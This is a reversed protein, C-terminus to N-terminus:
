LDTGLTFDVCKQELIIDVTLSSRQIVVDGRGRVHVAGDLQLVELSDLGKEAHGAVSSGLQQLLQFIVSTSKETSLISPCVGVLSQSSKMLQLIKVSPEAGHFLELLLDPM